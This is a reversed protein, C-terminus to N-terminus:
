LVSTKTTEIPNKQYHEPSAPCALNYIEDVQTLFPLKIDHFVFTFNPNNMIKEINAKNSTM